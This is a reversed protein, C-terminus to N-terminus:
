EIRILTSGRMESPEVATLFCRRSRKRLKGGFSTAASASLTDINMRAPNVCKDVSIALSVSATISQSKSTAGASVTAHGPPQTLVNLLKQAMRPQDPVAWQPQDSAGDFDVK